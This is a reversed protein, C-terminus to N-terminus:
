QAYKRTLRQDLMQAETQAEQADIQQQAQADRAAMQQNLQTQVQFRDASAHMILGAAQMQGSVAHMQGVIKEAEIQSGASNLKSLLTNYQAGLSSMQQNYKQLDLTYQNALQGVVDFQKFQNVDYRVANGFRDPIQSIDRYIGNATYRLANVGNAVSQVEAISRGIGQQISNIDNVLRNIQLMGIYTNPDGLRRLQEIQNDVQQIFKAIDELHRLYNDIETTALQTIAGVDVVPIGTAQVSPVPAFQSPPVLLLGACIVALFQCLFSKPRLPSEARVVVLGRRFFPQLRPFSKM